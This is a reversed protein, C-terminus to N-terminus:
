AKAPAAEVGTEKSVSEESVPDEVVPDGTGPDEGGGGPDEVANSKKRRIDFGGSPVDIIGELEHPTDKFLRKLTQTLSRWRKRLERYAVNRRATTKEKAGKLNHRESQLAEIDDIFQIGELLGDMSLGYGITKELISEDGAKTYLDRAKVLFAETRRNIKDVLGLRTLLDSDKEFALRLAIATDTFHADLKKRLKGIKQTLGRKDLNKSEKGSYFAKLETQLRKIDDLDEQTYGHALLIEKVATNTELNALGDDVKRGLVEIRKIPVKM